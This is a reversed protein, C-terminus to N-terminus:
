SICTMLKVQLIEAQQEQIMMGLKWMNKPNCGVLFSAESRESGSSADSEEEQEEGRAERLSMLRRM